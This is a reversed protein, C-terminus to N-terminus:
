GTHLQYAVGQCCMPLNGSAKKNPHHRHGIAEIMPSELLLMGSWKSMVPATSPWICARILGASYPMTQRLMNAESVSSVSEPLLVGVSFFSTSGRSPECPFPSVRSQSVISTIGCFATGLWQLDSVCFWLNRASTSVCIHFIAMM